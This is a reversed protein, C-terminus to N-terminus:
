FPASRSAFATELRLPFPRVKTEAARSWRSVINAAARKVRFTMASLSFLERRGDVFVLGDLMSMHHCSEPYDKTPSVRHFFEERFEECTLQVIKQIVISQGYSTACDQAPRFLHGQHSFVSGASRSSSVDCKIPNKLHPTWPGGIRTAHWAHLVSNGESYEDFITAFVWWRGGYQFLTPDSYRDGQVVVGVKQWVRPFKECRYIAIEKRALTEPVCYLREADKVLCPYSTHFPFELAVDRKEDYRGETLPLVAIAGRAKTFDYREAFVYKNGEHSTLFPDAYFLPWRVDLFWDVDLAQGKKLLGSLGDRVMGINWQSYLFFRKALKALHVMKRFALLVPLLVAVWRRSNQPRRTMCLGLERVGSVVGRDVLELAIQAPWDYCQALISTRHQAVSHLICRFKGSKLVTIVGHPSISELRVEQIPSGRWLEGIGFLSGDNSSESEHRPGFRYSWVGYPLLSLWAMPGSVGLNFIFDLHLASIKETVDGHSASFYFVNEQGLLTALRRVSKQAWQPVGEGHFLVGCRNQKPAITDLAALM